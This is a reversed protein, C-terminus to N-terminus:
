APAGTRALAGADAPATVGVGAFAATLRTVTRNRYLQPVALRPLGASHLAALLRVAILSNGGIAFFDDDPGVRFGFVDEWAAHVTGAVSGDNSAAADPGAGPGASPEPLRAEDVKGNATLPLAPLVTITAPVMYDPLFSAAHRCVENPEVDGVLYADLRAAVPDAPDQRLVVAASRVGPTDLLRARVEGLEVRHGRLQVQSDVRGLHDLRGDPHLRGLDGTRYMPGNAFPDPLFRAATLEPRNLYAGAVGVGGVYLEGAVGPPVFRGHRDLVYVHWGPLPRGVSRSAALAEARGVPQATVHVTTETIGYMNVLRCATEPHRDFWSRLPGADLPEGGFIVLRLSAPLPTERDVGLLQAFASPTQNLVTIQEAALLAAFAEPTRSTRYPVIVLRGGTMLCGWIEWVSFDFATSHFQTWVDDPGFGFQGATAALLRSVNRHAIAVGKPLGTSGSTYIVYAPDTPSVEAAPERTAAAPEAAATEAGGALAAPSVAPVDGVPNASTILLALEADGAVFALREAPWAPDLPVYAAGAKLVGFLIAVLDPSRDLCVGVRTGASVGRGRLAAAVREARQDLQRYTLREGGACVADADPTRAVRAEVARHILDAGATDEATDEAGNPVSARAAAPQRGLGGLKAIARREGDDLIEIEALRRDPGLEALRRRATALQRAFGAVVEPALEGPYYWLEAAAGHVAVSLPYPPALFPRTEIAEVPPAWTAVGAVPPEGGDGPGALAAAVAGLYDGVSREPGAEFAVVRDPHLGVRVRDSGTYRGLVVGLAAVLDTETAGVLNLSCCAPVVKSGDGLGWDPAPARLPAPDNARHTVVVLDCQGNAYRLLVSRSAPGVAPAVPRGLERGRWAAATPSDAAAPVDQVWLRVAASDEGTLAQRIATVDAGAPLRVAASRCWRGLSSDKSM